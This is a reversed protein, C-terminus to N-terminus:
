CLGAARRPAKFTEKEKSSEEATNKRSYKEQKPEGGRRLPQLLASDAGLAQVLRWLIPLRM